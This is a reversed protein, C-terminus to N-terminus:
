AAETALAMALLKATSPNLPAGRLAQVVTQRCVGARVAFREQTERAVAARLAEALDTPLPGVRKPHDFGAM